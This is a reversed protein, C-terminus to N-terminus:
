LKHSNDERNESASQTEGAWAGPNSVRAASALGSCPVVEMEFSVNVM